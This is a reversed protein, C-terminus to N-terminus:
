MQNISCKQRNPLTIVCKSHIWLAINIRTTIRTSPQAHSLLLYFIHYASYLSIHVPLPLSLPLRLFPFVFVITSAQSTRSEIFCVNLMLYLSFFFFPSFGEDSEWKNIVTFYKHQETIQYSPEVIARRGHIHISHTNRIVLHERHLRSTSPFTFVLCM